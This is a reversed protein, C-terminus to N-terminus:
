GNRKSKMIKVEEVLHIPELSIIRDAQELMKLYKKRRLNYIKKKLKNM